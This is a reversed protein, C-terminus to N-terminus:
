RVYGLTKLEKKKKENLKVRKSVQKYKKCNKEFVTYSSFLRRAITQSGSFLNITEGPDESRNFLERSVVVKNELNIIYKWKGSTVSRMVKNIGKRDVKRVFRHIAHAFLFRESDGTEKGNIVPMLDVGEAITDGEIGLYSNITPLIDIAGVNLAIRRPKKGQEPFMFILPVHTAEVYLSNGHGNFGHERFGEGHDAAIIILTNKDWGLRHYLEKIRADVYSIESDYRAVLDLRIKEKKKYWPTRAHYPGHPDNFHIYLFYKDRSMIEDAWKELRAEILKKNPYPFLKFKDFGRSFGIAKGINVNEAVGYTSYGKEKLFQPITKVEPPIINLDIGMGQTAFFGTTVGHQFPYLSTFISATAPATWTSTSYANEFVVGRGAIKNIFPATDKEYGYTTLHDARLTDIVILVVNPEPSKGRCNVQLMAAAILSLLIIWKTGTRM